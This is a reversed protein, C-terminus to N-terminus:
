AMKLRIVRWGWRDKKKDWASVAKGKVRYDGDTWKKREQSPVFITKHDSTKILAFPSGEFVSMSGEFDITTSGTTKKSYKRNKPAEIGLDVKIGSAANAYKEKQELDNLLDAKQYWPTAMLDILRGDVTWSNEKQISIVNNIETKAWDYEQQDVLLPILSKRLNIVFREPVRLQLGESFIRIAKKPQGMKVAYNGLLSWVWFESSKRNAFKLLFSFGKEYEEEEYLIKALAYELWQQDIDWSLVQVLLSKCKSFAQSLKEESLKRFKREKSKEEVLSKSWALLVREGLSPTKHNLKEFERAELRSLDWWELCEYVERWNDKVRVLGFLPLSRYKGEPSPLKKMIDFLQDVYTFDASKQAFKCHQFFPKGLQLWFHEVFMENFSSDLLSEKQVSEIYLELQNWNENQVEVKIIDYFVWSVMRRNMLMDQDQDKSEWFLALAEEYNQQDRAAKIKQWTKM